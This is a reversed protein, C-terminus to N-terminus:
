TCTVYNTLNKLHIPFSFKVWKVTILFKSGANLPYFIDNQDIPHLKMAQGQWYQMEAHNLM